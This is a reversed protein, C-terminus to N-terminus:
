AHRCENGSASALLGCCSTVLESYLIHSNDIHSCTFLGRVLGDQHAAVLDRLNSRGIVIGSHSALASEERDGLPDSIVALCQGKVVRQGLRVRARVIGSFPARVWRTSQAVIPKFRQATRVARGPLMGLEHM